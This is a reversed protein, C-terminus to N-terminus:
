DIKQGNEFLIKMMKLATEDDEDMEYKAYVYHIPNETVYFFRCSKNVDAGSEALIKVAELYGFLIAHSLLTKSSSGFGPWHKMENPDANEELLSRLQSSQEEGWIGNEDEELADFLDFIKSVMGSM